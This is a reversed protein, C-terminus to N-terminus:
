QWWGRLRDLMGQRPEPAAPGAAAEVAPRDRERALTAVAEDSVFAELFAPWHGELEVVATGIDGSKYRHDIRALRRAIEARQSEDFALDFVRVDDIQVSGPGLLDFRVRLSEITDAPLDDVQLVFLSWEGTLPRGGTLGGIAAFRYYERSGEVGEIAIRLPPQPSNPELRLWAAVSIRGTAPPPFPNSRLTSLGNRSAFELGRGAGSPEPLGAVLALSGRRPELLEWGSVAPAAAVPRSEAPGLEFGPNDLVDLAAPATLVGLRLRLREIAAATTTRVPEAYDITAGEIRGAGDLVLPKMEWAALPVAVSEGEMAFTEGTRADVLTTVPDTLRLLARAPAPGANVVQVWTVGDLPRSRVVLPPPLNALPELRVAPLLEHGRPQRPSPTSTLLPRMDFIVSADVSALSEALDRDGAAAARVIRLPCPPPAAATPFPGHPVIEALTVTLPQEIFVAGHRGATLSLARNATARTSRETLTGAATHVHPALFVLREQDPGAAPLAAVLGIERLLDKNDPGAALTPGFRGALDGAALLTTPVVFLQRREEDATARATLRAYFATLESTRWALWEERLDGTVLRAREAFRGEETDAEPTAAVGGIAVLFRAFTQDDLGWAVGPLHLWGDHPLVLALGAGGPMGRLRAAAEAIIEEVARQVRPDLINYHVGGPLRRTRGDAGVCAIGTADDGGRIIELAPIAGDFCFAPILALGERAYVIATAALLDHDLGVAADGTHWRPPSQTLRSPWAAAGGAYVTVVGGALGEAALADASHRIAQLHAVWDTLARSREAEVHGGGGFARTLDTDPLLAFTPRPQPPRAAAVATPQARPLRDPGALVRVRGVLMPGSTVPNAVVLLPQRTTPWFVFRHTNLRAPGDHPTAAIEVGGGYRVEVVANSADTELVCLGITGRQDTPYDVEVLHPMGPRTNAIVIGEWSPSAASLAPPLRLMPGLPHPSVASHGSALMGGLRPVLSSVNPLPMAPLPVSPIAPLPMDPMRPMQIGTRSLSPMPMAPLSINPRPMNQLGRAPLRRLREHLRPSAPDLEYILKWPEVNGRAPPEVAIAVLQVRRTALPRNWRLGRREVAELLVDYAGEEDPLTLECDVPEFATPVQDIATAEVPPQPAPKLPIVRTDLPTEQRAPSLRVRLEVDGGGPKMLILPSVRLRIPDGPRRVTDGVLPTGRGVATAFEVHLADGPVQEIILRNGEGDLPQQQPTSLIEDLTPELRVARAGTAATALTVAIRARQWDSITLEVGDQVIPRSQQIAIGGDTDHVMAATDPETSLTRWTTTPRPEGAAGGVEIRGSWAQPTGGGWRVRVTVPRIADAARVAQDSTAVATVAVIAILLLSSSRPSM